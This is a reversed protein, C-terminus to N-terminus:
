YTSCFSNMKKTFILTSIERSDFLKRNHPFFKNFPAILRYFTRKSSSNRSLLNCKFIQDRREPVENLNTRQLNHTPDKHARVYMSFLKVLYKSM